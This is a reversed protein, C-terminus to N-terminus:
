AGTIATRLQALQMRVIQALSQYLVTNETLKVMEADLDVNNGDPRLSTEARVVTGAQVDELRPVDGIAIHKPDTVAGSLADRAGGQARLAAALRDSFLVETRKFGPTDVNALNHATVEAQLRSAALANTIVSMSTSSFLRDIM